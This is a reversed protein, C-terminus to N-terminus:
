TPTSNWPVDDFWRVQFEPDEFWELLDQDEDMWIDWGPFQDDNRDDDTPCRTVWIHWGARSRDRTVEICHGKHPGTTLIGRM